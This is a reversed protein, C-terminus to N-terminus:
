NLMVPLAAQGRGPYQGLPIQLQLAGTAPDVKLTSRVLNDVSSQPNQINQSFVPLSFGMIVFLLTLQVCSIKVIKAGISKGHNTSSPFGRKIRQTVIVRAGPKDKLASTITQSVSRRAGASM